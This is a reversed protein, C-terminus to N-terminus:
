DGPFPESTRLLGRRAHTSCVAAGHTVNHTVLMETSSSSVRRVRTERESPFLLFCFGNESLFKFLVTRGGIVNNRNRWPDRRIVEAKKKRKHKLGQFELSRKGSVPFFISIKGFDRSSYLSTTCRLSNLFFLFYRTQKIERPSQTGDYEVEIKMSQPGDYM